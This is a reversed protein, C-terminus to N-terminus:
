TSAADGVDAPLDKRIRRSGDGGRESELAFQHDGAQHAGDPAARDDGGDAHLGASRGYGRLRVQRGRLQGRGQLDGLVAGPDGSRRRSEGPGADPQLDRAQRGGHDHVRQAQLSTGFDLAHRECVAKKLEATGGAATYKTFNQELARVAAQKINDPTPFTRSAPGSISWTSVKAAFGTGSRGVGEDHFVRQHLLNTGRNPQSSSANRKSHGKLNPNRYDPACGPEGGVAAGAGYYERGPWFSGEGAAFQHLFVGREGDHVGNRDGPQLRRNM